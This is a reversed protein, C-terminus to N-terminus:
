DQPIIGTDWTMHGALEAWPRPGTKEVEVVGKRVHIEQYGGDNASLMWRRIKRAFTHPKRLHTILYRTREM